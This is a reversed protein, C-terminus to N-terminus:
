FSGIIERVIVNAVPQGQNNHLNHLQDIVRVDCVHCM